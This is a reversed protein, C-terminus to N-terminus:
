DTLNNFTPEVWRVDNTWQKPSTLLRYDTLSKKHEDYQSTMSRGVHHLTLTKKFDGIIQNQYFRKFGDLSIKRVEEAIRSRTNFNENGTLINSWYRSSLEYLNKEPETLRSMLGEKHATFQEDSMSSLEQAFRNLFRNSYLQLLAPNTNPSQVYLMLGPLGDLPYAHALVIYGLQEKTRLEAFYPAEITDALLGFLARDRLSSSEGQYYQLFASDPHDVTVQDIFNKQPLAAVQRSPSEFRQQPIVADVREALVLADETIMNGHILFELHVNEWWQDRHNTLSAPTLKKLAAIQTEISFANSLMWEQLQRNLQSAVSAESSNSLQRLLEEKQTAFREPSITHDVLEIVLAELLLSVKDAYGYLRIQIGRQSLHISYGSGAIGAEYRIENLADNILKLYLNMAVAQETSQNATNTKLLLHIDVKPTRFEDDQEFWVTKFQDQFILQPTFKYLSSAEKALPIVDLQTPIFPNPNPLSLRNDVAVTRWNAVTEGTLNQQQYPTKYYQSTATTKAEPHILLVLANDPKLQTLVQNINETDLVSLQYPGSLIEEPPYYRLREALSIVTSRPAAKEAYQFAMENITKQEEFIWDQVGQQRILELYSFTLESIDEWAKLGAKTLDISVSFTTNSHTLRGGNVTLNDAWGNTKLISLLSGTSEHGLLHSIFQTPKTAYHEATGAIPFELQLRRMDRRPKIEVLMPLKSQAFQDMTFVAPETKVNRVGNFYNKVWSELTAIDQPGYVALSMNSGVYHERFFTQLQEEINPTNLTELTGVTLQSSPHNPNTIERKVDAIRRGDNQLSATYESHVVNREREIYDPTLLPSIFFQSFRDLAAELQDAKIDFYYVTNETDTYANQSGGNQKIFSQYSDVGPFKETGLFLMHELFHALGQADSPDSWSGSFVNLAAAANDVSVDSVLVISLGNELSITKFVRSESQSVRINSPNTEAGSQHKAWFATSGTIAIAVGVVIAIWVGRKM